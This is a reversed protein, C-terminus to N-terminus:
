ESPIPGSDLGCLLGVFDWHLCPEYYFIVFLVLFGNTHILTIFVCSSHVEFLLDM